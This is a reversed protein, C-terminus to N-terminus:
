VFKERMKHCGFFKDDKHWQERDQTLHIKGVGAWGTKKLIRNLIIRRKELSHRKLQRKNL